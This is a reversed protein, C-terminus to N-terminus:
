YQIKLILGSVPLHLLLEIVPKDTAKEVAEKYARLQPAYEKVREENDTGPYSKHDIIVYGDATEVLLDIWGQMIQNKDNRLLIPWEKFVKCGPYNQNLFDHLKQGALLLEAPELATEVGWSKLITHVTELRKEETMDNYDLALYAHVASGLANMEPKGQISIRSNYNYLIDFAVSDTSGGLSSPSIRAPPYDCSSALCDPAYQDEDVVLGPLDMDDADYETVNIPITTNGVQLMKNAADADWKIVSEGDAGVLVDLWATKLNDGQKRIALILGDKARTMGVYLLRQEERETMAQIMTKCSHGDIREDLQPYSRQSGFFWPWYRIKRDAIPNKPDFRQAAEIHVGFVDYRPEKGLGTLVVWPWELGKAGHYTLIKVTKEGAGEAQEPAMENLYVVFGEITAANRHARCLEIYERCTGRL